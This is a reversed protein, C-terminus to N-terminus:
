FLNVWDSVKIGEKKVYEAPVELVFKAKRDPAFVKPYSDPSINEEIHIIKMMDDIWIIDIAFDMDKMWIGHYDEKKFIFFMGKNDLLETHNSLGIVREDESDAVEIEIISDGIVAFKEGTFSNAALNDYTADIVGSEQWINQLAPVSVLTISYVFFGLVSRTTIKIINKILKRREEM